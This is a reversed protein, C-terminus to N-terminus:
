PQQRRTMTTTAVITATLETTNSVTTSVAPTETAAPTATATTSGTEPPRICAGALLAVLGLMFAICLFQKNKM